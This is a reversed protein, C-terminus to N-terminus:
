ALLLNFIDMFVRALQKAYTRLMYGNLGDPGAEKRVNVKSLTHYVDTSFLTLPQDDHLPDTKRNDVLNWQDFCTYFHKLEDPLSTHNTPLPTSPFNIDTITHIGHWM